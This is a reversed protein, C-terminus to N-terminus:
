EEKEAAGIVVLALGIGGVAVGLYAHVFILDFSFLLIAIGIIINKLKM